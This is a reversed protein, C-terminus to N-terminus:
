WDDEEDDYISFDNWEKPEIWDNLPNKKKRFFRYVIGYLILIGFHLTLFGALCGFGCSIRLKICLFFVIGYLIMRSFYGGVVPGGKKSIETLTGTRVLILFCGVTTATGAALGAAFWLSPKYVILSLIEAFVAMGLASLLIEKKFSGWDGM